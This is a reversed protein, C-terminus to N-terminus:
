LGEALVQAIHRVQVSSARKKMADEINMLCGADCGTVTDAGTALISDAKEDAL